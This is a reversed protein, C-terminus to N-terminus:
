HRRFLGQQWFRPALWTQENRDLFTGIATNQRPLERLAEEATITAALGVLGLALAATKFQWEPCVSAPIAGITLGLAIALASQSVPMVFNGDVLGYIIAILASGYAGLFLWRSDRSDTLLGRRAKVLLLALAALVLTLGLGGIEALWQLMWNHPHAAGLRELAAYHMPGIGIWPASEWAQIAAIWLPLRGSTHDLETLHGVDTATPWGTLSPLAEFAALYLLGGLAASLAVATVSSRIRAWGLLAILVLAGIGFAFPMARTGLGFNIAWLGVMLGFCLRRWRAEGGEATSAAALLPILVAYFASAFRRNAFGTTLTEFDLPMGVLVASVYRALVAFEQTAAILLVGALVTRAALEPAFRAFTAFFMALGFLGLFLGIELAAMGPFRAQAASLVAVGLVAWLPWIIRPISARVEARCSILLLGLSTIALLATQIVRQEDHWSADLGFGISTGFVFYILWLGAIGIFAYRALPPSPSPSPRSSM